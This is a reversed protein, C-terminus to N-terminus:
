AYELDPRNKHHVQAQCTNATDTGTGFLQGITKWELWKSLRDSVRESIQASLYVLSLGEGERNGNM